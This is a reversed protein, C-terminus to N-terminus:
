RHRILVIRIQVPRRTQGRRCAPQGRNDALEQRSRPARHPPYRVTSRACGALYAHAAAQKGILSTRRPVPISILSSTIPVAGSRPKRLEVSCQTGFLLLLRVLHERAHTAHHSAARTFARCTSLRFYGFQHMAVDDAGPQPWRHEPFQLPRAHGLVRHSTRQRLGNKAKFEVSPQRKNRCPGVCHDRNRSNTSVGIREARALPRRVVGM